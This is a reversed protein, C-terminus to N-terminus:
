ASSTWCARWFFFRTDGDWLTPLERVERRRRCGRLAGRAARAARPRVFPTVGGLRDPRTRRDAPVRAPADVRAPGAGVVVRAGAAICRGDNPPSSNEFEVQRRHRARPHRTREAASSASLDVLTCTALRDIRSTRAELRAATRARCTGGRVGGRLVRPGRGPRPGHALAAPGRLGRQWGEGDEGVVVDGLCSTSCPKRTTRSAATGSASTRRPSGPPSSRGAASARAGRERRDAAALGGHGLRTGTGVIGPGSRLLGRRRRGGGEGVGAGVLGVRVRRRRRLLRRRRSRRSSVARGCSGCPTRSRLAAAGRGRAPRLRRSPRRARRVGARGPQAALLLRRAHRRALRRTRGDGRRAPRRVAGAYVPLKM